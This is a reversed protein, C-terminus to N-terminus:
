KIARVEIGILNRASRSPRKDSEIVLRFPGEKADLPKGDKTDAILVAGTRFDPDIDALPLIVDYGDAASFIMAAGFAPGRTAEASTVGVLALLTQATVGEYRVPGDRGALTASIHPLARVEAESVVRAQGTLGKLTLDAAPAAGAMALWTALGLIAAPFRRM